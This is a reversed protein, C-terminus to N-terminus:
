TNFKSEIKRVMCWRTYYFYSKINRLTFKTSKGTFSPNYRQVVKCYDCYEQYLFHNNDSFEQLSLDAFHIFVPQYKENIIVNGDKGRQINYTNYNWGALNCGPHKLIYVGEFEIPMLDLYKQDDFLGRWFAKKINYLCCQAWWAIANIAKNNVAIFGANYLGVRFNAELWNQHRNPNSPYHHPTLLVNWEDLLDFLFTPNSLFFIDNDVYIIKPNSKLLYLMFLPKLAWRLKDKNNGYKGIIKQATSDGDFISLDFIQCNKETINEAREDVLLLFLEAGFAHLSTALAKSKYLHSATSISCFKLM